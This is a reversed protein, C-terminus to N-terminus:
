QPPGIQGICVAVELVIYLLAREQTLLTSGAETHYTSFLARGCGYQYSVTLPRQGQYEGTVWVTPTFDTVAGDEDPATYPNVSEIATYNLETVFSTIGQAALWEALGPETATSPADYSPLLHASGFSGDDGLWTIPTPDTQRLVDYSWDTVYLRGGEAMFRRLNDLVAPDTLYSDPWSDACPFFVVHYQSLTDYDTLFADRASGQIYDFSETGVMLSGSGDVEGLGLKGLTNEIDDYIGDLVAMKPIDDGNQPDQVSPLTTVDPGVSQEGKAVNVTRVRRFAGKQVVLYQEGTQYADLSFSGDAASLTYPIDTGLDICKDCFVQQPIAEPQTHTLYVLAGSIPITGEPALVTGTLSGIVTNPLGGGANLGGGVGLGGGSSSDDDVSLESRSDQTCAGVSLFLALATCTLVWLLPRKM